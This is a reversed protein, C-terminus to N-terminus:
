SRADQRRRRQRRVQPVELCGAQRLRGGLRAPRRPDEQRGQLRRASRDRADYGEAGYSGPAEGYEAQFDAPSRAAPRRRGPLCPCTVIAGEAGGRRCGDPLRPRLPRRLRPVQGHRRGRAAAQAFPAAENTYGGYAIVDPAAAKIKSITADFNTQQEQVKDARRRGRGCARRSRTSSAPATPAATTSSSSRPAGEAVDKIYTSRPRARPATTASSGTSRSTARRRDARGRDGVPEGHGPRRGRLDAM